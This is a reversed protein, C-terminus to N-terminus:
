ATRSFLFYFILSCPCVFTIILITCNLRISLHVLFRGIVGSCPRLDVPTFVILQMHFLMAERQLLIQFSRLDYTKSFRFFNYSLHLRGSKTSQQTAEAIENVQEKARASKVGSRTAKRLHAELRGAIPDAYRYMYSVDCTGTIVKSYIRVFTKNEKTIYAFFFSLVFSYM